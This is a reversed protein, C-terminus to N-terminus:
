LCVCGEIYDTRRPRAFTIRNDKENKKLVRAQAYANSETLVFRGLIRSVHCTADLNGLKRAVFCDDLVQRDVIRISVAEVEGDVEELTVQFERHDACWQKGILLLWPTSTPTSAPPRIPTGEETYFYGMARLDGIPGFMSIWWQKSPGHYHLISEGEHNVYVRSRKTVYELAQGVRLNTRWNFVHSYPLALAGDALSASHKAVARSCATSNGVESKFHGYVRHGFCRVHILITRPPHNVDHRSSSTANCSDAPFIDVKRVRGECWHGQFFVDVLDGATLKAVWDDAPAAPSPPKPALPLLKTTASQAWLDDDGLKSADLGDLASLDCVQPSDPNPDTADEDMTPEDDTDALDDVTSVQACPQTRVPTKAAVQSAALPCTPMSNHGQAVTASASATTKEIKVRAVKRPIPTAVVPTPTSHKTPSESPTVSSRPRESDSAEARATSSDLAEDDGEVAVAFSEPTAPKIGLCVDFVWRVERLRRRDTLQRRHAYYGKPLRPCSDSPEFYHLQALQLVQQLFEGATHQLQLFKRHDCAIRCKETEGNLVRTLVPILIEICEQGQPVKSLKQTLDSVELHVSEFTSM